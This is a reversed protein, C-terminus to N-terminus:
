VAEGEFSFERQKLCEMMRQFCNEVEEDYKQSSVPRPDDLVKWEPDREKLSSDVKNKFLKDNEYKDYYKVIAKDMREKKLYRYKVDSYDLVLEEFNKYNEEFYYQGINSIEYRKYINKKDESFVYSDHKLAIQYLINSQSLANLYNSSNEINKKINQDIFSLFHNLSRPFKGSKDADIFAKLVLDDDYKAIALCWESSIKKDLFDPNNSSPFRSSLEVLFRLIDNLEYKRKISLVNNM